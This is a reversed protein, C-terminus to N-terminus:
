MRNALGLQVALDLSMLFSDCPRPPFPYNDVADM